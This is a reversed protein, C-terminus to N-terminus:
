STKGSQSNLAPAIRSETHDRPVTGESWKWIDAMGRRTEGRGSKLHNGWICTSILVWCFVEPLSEASGQPKERQTGIVKGTSQGRFEFWRKRGLNGVRYGWSLSVVPSQKPEGDRCCPRYVKELCYVWTNMLSIENIEWRESIVTRKKGLICHWPLRQKM